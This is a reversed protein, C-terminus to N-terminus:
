SNKYRFCKYTFEEQNELICEGADFLDISFQGKQHLHILSNKVAHVIVETVNARINLLSLLM